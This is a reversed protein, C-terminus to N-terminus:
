HPGHAECRVALLDGCTTDVSLYSHPVHLGTGFEQSENAVLLDYRGDREARVPRPDECPALVACSPHPIRLRTGFEEGELTM